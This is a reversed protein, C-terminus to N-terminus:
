KQASLKLDAAAIPPVAGAATELVVILAKKADPQSMGLERTAKQTILKGSGQTEAELQLERWENDLKQAIDQEARLLVYNNRAKHQSTVVLLACVVLALLLLINIRTM